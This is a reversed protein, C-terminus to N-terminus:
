RCLTLECVIACCALSTSCSRVLGNPQWRDTPAWALPLELDCAVLSWYTWYSFMACEIPLFRGYQRYTIMAITKAGAPQASREATAQRM